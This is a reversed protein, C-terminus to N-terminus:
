SQWLQDCASGIFCQSQINYGHGCFLWLGNVSLTRANAEITGNGFNLTGFNGNLDAQATIDVTGGVGLLGSGNGIFSLGDTGVAGAKGNGGDAGNVGPANGLGGIGGLGSAGESGALGASGGGQGISSRGNATITLDGTTLSGGNASITITGGNGRNGM